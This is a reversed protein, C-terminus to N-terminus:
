GRPDWGTETCAQRLNAHMGIEVAPKHAAYARFLYRGGQIYQRYNAHRRGVRGGFDLWGVYPFRASGETVAAGAGPRFEVEVSNRAHGGAVPGLPILTRTRSAVAEASETCSDNLEREAAVSLAGLMAQVHPIGDVDVRIAM